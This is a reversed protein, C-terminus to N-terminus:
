TPAIIRAHTGSPGQAFQLQGGQQHLLRQVLILGLGEGPVGGLGPNHLWCERSNAGITIIGGKDAHSLANALLSALAVKLVPEPIKLCHHMTVQCDVQLDRAELAQANALVWREIIPLLATARQSEDRKPERALQLLTEVVQEMHQVSALLPTVDSRQESLRELGLRLVALPTRLEHSADRSFTQEREILDRTRNLLANMHRALEGVEDTRMEGPLATPLAEPRAVATAKALEEIPQAFRRALGTGLALALLLTVGSWGLLWEVVIARMPRVILESSVETWLWPPTQDPGLALVHYHRGDEGGVERRLPEEALGKRLDVPLDRPQIALAVGPTAPAIWRGSQAYALQIPQAAAHLRQEFFQDEVAYALAVAFFAFISAVGLTFLALVLALRRQLKM